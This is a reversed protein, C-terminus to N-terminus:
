WIKYTCRYFPFKITKDDLKSFMFILHSHEGRVRLDIWMNKKRKMVLNM